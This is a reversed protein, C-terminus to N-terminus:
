NIMNQQWCSLAQRPKLKKYGHQLGLPVLYWRKRLLNEFATKIMILGQRCQHLRSMPPICSMALIGPFLFGASCYRDENESSM